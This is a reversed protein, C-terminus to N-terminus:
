IGLDGLLDAAGSRGARDSGRASLVRDRDHRGAVADDSGIARQCAERPPGLPLPQQQIELAVTSGEYAARMLCPPRRSSGRRWVRRTSAPRGGLGSRAADNEYGNSDDSVGLSEADSSLARM